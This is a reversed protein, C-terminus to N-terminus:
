AEGCGGGPHASCVPPNQSSFDGSPVKTSLSSCTRCAAAAATFDMVPPAREIRADFRHKKSQTKPRHQHQNGDSKRNRKADHPDDVHRVALQHHEARVGGVHDLHIGL